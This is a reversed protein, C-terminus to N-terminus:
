FKYREASYVCALTRLSRIINLLHSNGKVELDILIEFFDASRAVIKFNSINAHENAINTSVKVLSGAENSMSIKIRGIHIEQTSDKDWSVDLWREPTASFNELTECDATHITVGKGSHTIGVIRDGPLPHCCSAFHMAMGPILGKISINNKPNQPKKRIKRFISLSKRFTSEKEEAPAKTSINRLESSTIRGEGASIALEELNKIKLISLIEQIKVNEENIEEGFEKQLIAKGLKIYEERKQARTFRRIESLAKGTIAFKEWSPSPVQTKSTIIEVQDGNQLKTKLPMITGNVKVGVCHNGIDSHVAYAFDIPTSGRPLAILSGRPTFCFVQDYYMELKTNELFEDPDAVNELIQLLERIWKYQKGDINYSRHQKYSWHAAVGFEAIEHMKETRIQMEVRQRGPGVVITHLSQYENSKPTSIFDKFSDPVMHYKTHIIGLIKYCDIVDKTIIRFGIIDSLQEFHVSKKEMKQWISCPTKERGYVKADVGARNLTNELDAIIKDITKLGRRRLFELRSIISDRVEPYLILFALDQLENKFKQVGIREALPAYIEMTEHAIRIRKDSSQIFHLTRMNHLRDALKVLLVRIDESMAILLKRFNEAQRINDPQFEIKTLKTVGDVLQRIENGFEQEIDDLTVDTDEVTDHLIATVITSNDLKMDTLIKAVEMPHLCYPDGSARTQTGHHKIAFDCAKAIKALNEPNEYKGIISLLDKKAKLEPRERPSHNLESQM